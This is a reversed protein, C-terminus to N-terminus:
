QQAQAHGRKGNDQSQEPPRRLFPHAPERQEHRDGYPGNKADARKKEGHPPQSTHREPLQFQIGLLIRLTDDLDGQGKDAAHSRHGIQHDLVPFPLLGSTVLFALPVAEDVRLHLLGDVLQAGVLGGRADRADVRQRVDRVVGAYTVVTLMHHINQAAVQTGVACFIRKVFESVGDLVVESMKDFGSIRVLDHFGGDDGDHAVM